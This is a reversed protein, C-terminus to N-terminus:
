GDASIWASKMNATIWSGKYPPVLDVPDEYTRLEEARAKGNISDDFDDFKQNKWSKTMFIEPLIPLFAVRAPLGLETCRRSAIRFKSCHSTGKTMEYLDSHDEFFFGAM